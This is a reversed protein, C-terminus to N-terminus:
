QNTSKSQNLSAKKKPSKSQKKTSLRVENTEVLMLIYDAITSIFPNNKEYKKIMTTIHDQFGTPVKMEFRADRPSTLWSTQTTKPM